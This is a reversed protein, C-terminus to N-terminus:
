GPLTTSRAVFDTPVRGMGEWRYDATDKGGAEKGRWVASSEKGPHNHRPLPVEGHQLVVLNQTTTTSQSTIPSTVTRTQFLRVRLAFITAKPSLALASMRLPFFAGVSFQVLVRTLLTNTGATVTVTV